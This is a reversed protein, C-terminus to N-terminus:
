ATPSERKTRSVQFNWSAPLGTSRLVLWALGRRGALWRGGQDRRGGVAQFTAGLAQELGARGQVAKQCGYNGLLPGPCGLSGSTCPLVSPLAGPGM